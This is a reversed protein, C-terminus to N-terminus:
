AVALNRVKQLREQRAQPLRSAPIDALRGDTLITQLEEWSDFYFLGPMNDTDYFDANDVWFELQLTPLLQPPMQRAPDGMEIFTTDESARAHPFRSWFDRAHQPLQNWPLKLHKGWRGKWFHCAQQV